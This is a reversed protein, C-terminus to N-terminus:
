YIANIDKISWKGDVEELDIRMDGTFDSIPPRSVSYYLEVTKVSDKRYSLKWNELKYRSERECMDSFDRHIRLGAVAKECGGEKLITLFQEAEGEPAKDRFPNFIVYTPVSSPDGSEALSWLVPKPTTLLWGVALGVLSVVVLGIFIFMNRSRM